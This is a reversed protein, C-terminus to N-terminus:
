TDGRHADDEPAGAELERPGPREVAAGSGTGVANAIVVAFWPLLVAGLAPIILWWGPTFLCAVICLVRIGMAIGYRLMRSHREQDPSPPLETVVVPKERM